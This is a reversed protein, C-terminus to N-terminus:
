VKGILKVKNKTVYKALELMSKTETKRMLKSRHAEVTRPSLFL